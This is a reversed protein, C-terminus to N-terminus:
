HPLRYPPLPYAPYPYKQWRAEPMLYAAVGNPTPSRVPYIRGTIWIPDNGLNRPVGPKLYALVMQNAPPLPRRDGDSHYPVLVITRSLGQGSDIMVPFGALRVPADDTFTVTPAAEWARSLRARAEVARPDNRQLEHADHQRLIAQADWGAPALADWRIARVGAPPKPVSLLKAQEVRARWRAAPDDSPQAAGSRGAAGLLASALVLITMLRAREM